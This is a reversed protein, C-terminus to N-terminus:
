GGGYPCRRCCPHSSPVQRQEGDLSGQLSPLGQGKRRPGRTAAPHSPCGEPFQKDQSNGGAGPHRTGLFLGLGQRSACPRPPPAASAVAVEECFPRFAWGCTGAPQAQSPPLM